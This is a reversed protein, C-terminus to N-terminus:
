AMGGTPSLKSFDVGIISSVREIRQEYPEDFLIKPDAPCSVWANEDIEAELQGPSWGAYGLIVLYQSPGVGEAIAKLATFIGGPSSETTMNVGETVQVTGDTSYDDSHLIAPNAPSVPGGELLVTSTGRQSPLNSEKLVDSLKIQLPRNVVFGMAGEDGHRVIFTLTNEFYSGLQVPLSLLFHNTLSEDSMATIM